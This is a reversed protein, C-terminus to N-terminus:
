HDGEAQEVSHQEEICELIIKQLGKEITSELTKGLSTSVWIKTHKVRSKLHCKYFDKIFGELWERKDSLPIYYNAQEGYKLWVPLPSSLGDQEIVQIAHQRQKKFFGVKWGINTIQVEKHGINIISILIYEPYPRGQGPTVMLRHGVTINLKVRKGQSALYLSVVVAALTGIASLWPAFTNIFKM